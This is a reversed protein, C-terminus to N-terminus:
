AIPAVVITLEGTGDLRTGDPTVAIPLATHTGPAIYPSPIACEFGIAGDAVGAVAAADPRVIGYSAQVIWRGDVLLAVSDVPSGGPGDVAWGTQTIMAGYPYVHAAGASGDAHVYPTSIGPVAPDVVRITTRAVVHPGALIDLAHDGAAVGLLSVVGRFGAYAGDPGYLAAIDPRAFGHALRTFPKGDLAAVLPAPSGVCWGDLLMTDGSGILAVAPRMTEFSRVSRAGDLSGIPEAVTV